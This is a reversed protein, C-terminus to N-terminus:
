PEDTNFPERIKQVGSLAVIINRISRDERQGRREVKTGGEGEEVWIM